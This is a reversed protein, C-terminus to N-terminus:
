PQAGRRALRSPWWNWRGLLVVTSPVLLTRVLFTDMLVGLTLGVGIDRLMPSISGSGTIGVLAFVAFSGALVLGASTVTTGTVALAHAVAERLPLRQAEERIRSMVLINYDEGLALLFVFMLFPLVFTLGSQGGITMILLVTVGLAAFYSLAVSVVLYLPAILSRMVLALLVAIVAIAIPIVTHLDNGSVNGLDYAVAAQGAVGSTGAGVASAARQVDARVAPIAAAAAATTPDGARLTTAFVVTRGDASIYQASARYTLYAAPSVPTGPPPTPPLANAPGLQAHLQAFQAATLSAGTPNLPGSVKSFEQDAQLRSQITALAQPDNWASNPLKFLASTPAASTQPFYKSVLANGSAADSGSPATSAGGLLGSPQFGTSMAALGGFLLVGVVLTPAPWRVIRASTRGWWGIRAQGPEIRSPWFVARGFIALLAPLLTLGAILMLGIGIALPVALGSYLGFSAALLSLLAAIVTAASFTISEGVRTVAEVVADKPALGRRLEERMRFVLFLGYDTGAGIVLVIQLLQAVTSVQLGAGGAVASLPGAALVVAFAPVVTIIPGLASRFVVLLLLVVFLLSLNMVNSGLSGSTANNAVATAVSGAVHVQLGSPAAVSRIQSQLDTVLAKEARSQSGNTKPLTATVKINEAHGDRSRSVDTVSTVHAASGLAPTLKAIAATDEATLPGGTRAAVVTVVTQGTPKFPAALNAAQNSPVNSPLFSSNNSQAISSLSPLFVVAAAVGVIWAVVIPWRFRVSFRGIGAFVKSMM